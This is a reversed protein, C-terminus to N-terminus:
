IDARKADAIFIHEPCHQKVYEVTMQLEEWGKAGRAEYSAIQPKFVSVYDRTEEVIWKNFEFQPYAKGRFREPLKSIHPDLGVSVLSHTQSQIKELKEYFKM